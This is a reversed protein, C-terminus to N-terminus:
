WTEADTMIMNVKETRNTTTSYRFEQYHETKSKGDGFFQRGTPPM